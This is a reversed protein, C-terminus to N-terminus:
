GLYEGLNERKMRKGEKIKKGLKTGKRWNIGERKNRSGGEGKEGM